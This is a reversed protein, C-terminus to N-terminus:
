LFRICAIHGVYLLLGLYPFCARVISMGVLLDIWNNNRPQHRTTSLEVATNMPNHQSDLRTLVGACASAYATHGPGATQEHVSGEDSSTRRHYEPGYFPHKQSRMWEMSHEIANGKPMLLRDQTAGTDKSSATDIAMCVRPLALTSM